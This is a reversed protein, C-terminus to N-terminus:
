EENKWYWALEGTKAAVDTATVLAEGVLAASFGYQELMLMDEVTRVGSEAICQVKNAVLGVLELCVRTDVTFDKLNRNNIGIIRTPTDLAMELEYRDHVEVVPEIGLQQATEVFLPLDKPLLHAILLVADAGLLRTEYLQRLDIIFDKRLVPLSVRSKVKQILFPSGEFYREETIVSIAKAGNQEYLVPLQDFRTESILRGKVPSAKKAEAILSVRGNVNLAEAFERLPPLVEAAQFTEMIDKGHARIQEQKHRVIEDLM